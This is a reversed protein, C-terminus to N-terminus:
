MGHSPRDDDNSNDDDFGLDSATLNVGADQGMLAALFPNMEVEPQAAAAPGTAGNRVRRETFLLEAAASADHVDVRTEEREIPATTFAVANEPIVGDRMADPDSTLYTEVTESIHQKTVTVVSLGSAALADTVRKSEGSLSTVLIQRLQDSVGVKGKIFESLVRLYQLALVAMENESDISVRQVRSETSLIVPLGRLELPMLDNPTLILTGNPGQAIKGFAHKCLPSSISRLGQFECGHGTEIVVLDGHMCSGATVPQSKRITM